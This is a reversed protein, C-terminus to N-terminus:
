RGGVLDSAAAALDQAGEAQVEDDVRVAGSSVAFALLCLAKGPM